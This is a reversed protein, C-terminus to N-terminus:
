KSLLTVIGILNKVRRCFECKGCEHGCKALYLLKSSLKNYKWTHNVLCSHTGCGNVVLLWSHCCSCSLDMQERWSPVYFIWVRSKLLWSWTRFVLPSQFHWKTYKLLFNVVNSLTECRFIASLLFILLSWSSWERWLLFSFFNHERTKRRSRRIRCKHLTM